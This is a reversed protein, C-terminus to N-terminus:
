AMNVNSKLHAINGEPETFLLHNVEEVLLHMETPQRLDKNLKSHSCIIVM